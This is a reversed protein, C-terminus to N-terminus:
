QNHFCVAQSGRVGGRLDFIDHTPLLIGSEGPWVGCLSALVAPDSVCGPRM